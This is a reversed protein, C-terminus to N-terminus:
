NRKDRSARNSDYPHPLLRRRQMAGLRARLSMLIMISESSLEHPDRNAPIGIYISNFLFDGIVADEEDEAGPSLRSSSRPRRAAARAEIDKVTESIIDRTGQWDYGDFLNWIVQVGRIRLKQPSQRINGQNPFGSPRQASDPGRSTARGTSTRGFHDERFDLLSNAMGENQSAQAVSNKISVPAVSLSVTSEASESDLIETHIGYESIDEEEGPEPQYFESVYEMDERESFANSSDDKDEVRLGTEPGPETIFADGSFSALLDEIPVIETRYPSLKVPPAPPTLGNLISILTQTSDACTELILLANGFEIDLAKREGDPVQMIDLTAIASSLFGVPIYGMRLLSKAQDEDNSGFDHRDSDTSYNNNDIKDVVMVSAKKIHASLKIVKSDNLPSSLLADSLVFVARGSVDRPNLALASDRIALSINTRRVFEAAGESNSASSTPVSSQSSLESRKGSSEVNFSDEMQMIAHIFSVQYEVSVNFLKLKVTPDMEDPVFRCMIMPPVPHTESYTAAQRVLSEVENRRISAMGVQAAFLSPVSVVAGELAQAQLQLTGIPGGVNVEIDLHKVFGLSLIGPRDDQPLYKAVTSLKGLETGINALYGMHSIGQLSTTISTVTLRLVAGKRRQRLLTDLMIDDDGDYSDNSPMLIALLRELDKENPVPLYELRINQLNMSLEPSESRGLIFPGQLSIRDIQVGVGETRHVIKVASTSAKLTCESGVLDLSIGTMRLNIKGLGFGLEGQTRPETRSSEQFQVARPRDRPGSTKRAGSSKVTSSSAISSGLELLSSLGGSRSLIEDMQGLELVLRVPKTHIEVKSAAASLTVVIELDSKQLAVTDKLSSRMRSEHSFSFFQDRSHSMSMKTLDIRHLATNNSFSTKYALGALDVRLLLTEDHYSQMTAASQILVEPVHELFAIEVNSIKLCLRPMRKVSGSAKSEETPQESRQFTSNAIGILTKGLQLDFYCYVNLVEINIIGAPDDSRVETEEYNDSSSTPRQADDEGRGPEYLNGRAPADTNSYPRDPTSQTDLELEISHEKTPISPFDSQHRAPLCVTVQDIVILQKANRTLQGIWDPPETSREKGTSDRNATLKQSASPTRFIFSSTNQSGPELHHSSSSLRSQIPSEHQYQPKTEWDWGGPMANVNSSRSGSLASMYMSEAEDHTFIRSETLDEVPQGSQLNNDPDSGLQGSEAMVEAHMHNDVGGADPSGRNRIRQPYSILEAEHDENNPLQFSSNGFLSPGDRALHSTFSQHASDGSEVTLHAPAPASSQKASPRQRSSQSQQEDERHSIPVQTESIEGSLENNKMSSLASSITHFSTTSMPPSSHSHKLVSTAVDSSGPDPSGADSSDGPFDSLVLVRFQHLAITRKPSRCSGQDPDVREVRLESLGILFRSSCMAENQQPHSCDLSPRFEVHLAIDKVRLQLRDAIGNLYSAVFSPLTPGEARGIVLEEESSTSLSMSDRVSPLKSSIATQLELRVETSETELFSEALQHVALEPRFLSDELSGYRAPAPRGGPDHVTPTQIRPRNSKIGKPPPGTPETRTFTRQKPCEPEIKLYAEVGAIEVDIKSTLIDAPVTLKLYAIRASM